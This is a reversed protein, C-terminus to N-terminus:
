RSFRIQKSKGVEDSSISGSRNADYNYKVADLRVAYNQAHESRRVDWLDGTEKRFGGFIIELSKEVILDDFVAEVISAVLTISTGAGRTLVYRYWHYTDTFVVSSESTASLSITTGAVDEWSADTSSPEAVLRSGQLKITWTGVRATPKVVFRRENKGAYAGSTYDATKSGSSTLPQLLASGAVYNLDLAIMVKRADVDRMQLDNLLTSYARQIQTDYTTQGSFIDNAIGPYYLKLDADVIYNHLMTKTNKKFWFPVTRQPLCM